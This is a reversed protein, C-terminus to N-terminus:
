KTGNKRAKHISIAFNIVFRPMVRVIKGKLIRKKNRKRYEADLAAFGNEKWFQIVKEQDHPRSSPKLLCSNYKAIDYISVPVFKIHDKIRNIIEMGRSSNIILGSVTDDEGFKDTFEDWHWFDCLTIDSVRNVTTYKCQYCSERYTFAEMYLDNYTDEPWNYLHTHFTSDTFSFFWNMGNKVTKKARFHYDQLKGYKKELFSINEDFLKQSPVGHCVIDILILNEKLKESIYNNVASVQCPTGSFLVTKGSELDQQILLYVNGMDSQVYKSRMVTKLLAINDVRIHKVQFNKDMTCGYVIGGNKLIFSAITGFLGGSSSHFRIDEDYCIAAYTELVNQKKNNKAPCVKLCKGCSICKDENIRPMIFGYVDHTYSLANGPCINICAGCGTCEGQLIVNSINQDM